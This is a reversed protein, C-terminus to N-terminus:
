SLWQVGAGSGGRGCAVASPSERGVWGRWLVDPGLGRISM